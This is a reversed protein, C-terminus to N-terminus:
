FDIHDACLMARLIETRMALCRFIESSPFPVHLYMTVIATCLRRLLYSPLMLFHFDHLWVLDGDHYSEVVRRAFTRCEMLTLGEQAILIWDVEADGVQECQLLRVLVHGPGRPEM